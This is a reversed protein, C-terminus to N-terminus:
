PIIHVLVLTVEQGCIIIESSSFRFNMRRYETRACQQSAEYPQRFSDLAKSEVGATCTDFRLKVKHLFMIIGLKKIMRGSWLFGVDAAGEWFGSGANGVIDVHMM